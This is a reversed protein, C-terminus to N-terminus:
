DGATSDDRENYFLSQWRTISPVVAGCDSDPVGITIVCVNANHAMDCKYKLWQQKFWHQM